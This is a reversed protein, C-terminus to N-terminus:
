GASTLVRALRFPDRVRTVVDVANGYLPQLATLKKLLRPHNELAGTYIWPVQATAHALSASSDHDRSHERVTPGRGFHGRGVTRAESQEVNKAAEVLGRPYRSIPLVEALEFLDEDAFHDACLPRFGARVASQAAARTSAGFIMLREDRMLNSM